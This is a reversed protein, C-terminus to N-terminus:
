ISESDRCKIVLDLRLRSCINSKIYIGVGGASTKTDNHVFTFGNLVRNVQTDSKKIKTETLAIVDSYKNQELLMNEIRLFNKNLNRIDM